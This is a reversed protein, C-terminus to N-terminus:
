RGPTGGALAGPGDSGAGGETSSQPGVDIGAAGGPNLSTLWPPPITLTAQDVGVAQPTGVEYM